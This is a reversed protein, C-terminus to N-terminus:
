RRSGKLGCYFSPSVSFTCAKLFDIPNLAWKLLYKYSVGDVDLWAHTNYKRCVYMYNKVLYGRLSRALRKDKVGEFLSVWGTLIKEMDHLRKDRSSGTTISGERHVYVYFKYGCCAVRAASLFIRPQWDMDEHLLGVTFRNAGDEFLKAKYLNFCACPYWEGKKIAHEIFESSSYAHQKKFSVYRLREKGQPVDRWDGVVLDARTETMCEMLKECADSVLYDDSDVFMIYEGASADIGKNRADSLGGNNKHIVTVRPDIHAYNDCLAPCGDPSGDDVLLIEINGYTQALLSEVCVPLEREVGYVPVIISILGDQVAKSKDECM